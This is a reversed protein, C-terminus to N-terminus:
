SWNYFCKLKDTIYRIQDETMEPYMPLSLIKSQLEYAVPFDQPKYNLYEYAKLFPLAVPYHIATEIGQKYLYEKLKDRNDAQIVYLHFSHISEPRVVPTKIYPLGKLMSSYLSANYIRKETWSSLHPLKTYLIAAQLADMRSNIGEIDHKHKILAGHNAYRRCGLALTDDNTIICGADGYAGLNKGPYFSFSGAIGTLGAKVGQFSSLHAQACDELLHLNYLNCLQKIKDIAAVQGQLHVALIGKTKKSIVREIKNEDISYYEPDIDVFVVKAGTQSITESSSIWSNSVTIIEDGPGVELELGATAVDVRRDVGQASQDIFV